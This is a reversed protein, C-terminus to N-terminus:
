GNNTNSFPSMQGLLGMAMEKKTNEITTLTDNMASMLLIQLSEKDEMLSDDINLDIVEGKGNAKIHIMGGGSTIEFIKNEAEKQLTSAQASFNKALEGLNLNDFM